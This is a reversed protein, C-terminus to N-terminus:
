KIKEVVADYATLIDLPRKPDKAAEVAKPDTM